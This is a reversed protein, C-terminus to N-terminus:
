KVETSVVKSDTIQGNLIASLTISYKGSPRVGSVKEPIPAEITIEFSEGPKIDSEYKNSYERRAKDGMWAFNNNVILTKLEFEKIVLSGTNKFIVKGKVTDGAMYVPGVEVKSIMIENIEKLIFSGSAIIEGQYYAKWVHKGALLEKTALYGCTSVRAPPLSDVSVSVDKVGFNKARYTTQFGWQNKSAQSGQLAIGDISDIVIIDQKAELTKNGFSVNLLVKHEGTDFEHTFRSTNGASNEDITWQFVPNDINKTSAILETQTKKWFVKDCGIDISPKPKEIVPKKSNLIFGSLL